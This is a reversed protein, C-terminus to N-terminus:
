READPGFRPDVPAGPDLDPAVPTPAPPPMVPPVASDPQGIGNSATGGPPPVLYSDDALQDGYSPGPGGTAGVDTTRSGSTTGAGAGRSGDTPGSTLARTLRGAVVGATATLLLFTGPKRRAFGRVEELLDGPEHKQLFDAAQDTFDAGHHALQSGWGSQGHQAMERLEDGVSRLSQAAQEKQQRAQEVLQDRTQGALARTQERVDSTVESAKDKVTGAVQGAADSATEKLQGAEEQATQKVGEGGPEPRGDTETWQQTPYTMHSEKGRSVATDVSPPFRSGPLRSILRFLDDARSRCV